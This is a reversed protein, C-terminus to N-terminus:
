LVRTLWHMINLALQRNDYGATNMGIPRGDFRHLRASLMAAEGLVVVRGQGCELALGQSWGPVSVPDGYSVHVLVDGGRKEVVPQPPRAVATPSLKLFAVAPPDAYVAQGTFTLVRHIRESADRGAVIPHDGLGGNEASFIIHTSDFGHEYQVSDEAVGKSMQVGFRGALREAAQGVPYHDTILLLLGGAFAWDRIADCESDDFAPDDNRENTGEAAAIIYVSYPELEEPTTRKTGRSVRYGDSQILKAFPRCSKSARHVNHHAEDFLVRPGDTAYAPNSVHTDFSSDVKDGSACGAAVLVLALLIRLRM